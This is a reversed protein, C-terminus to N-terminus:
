LDFFPHILLYTRLYPHLYTPLYTPVYTPIPGGYYYLDDINIM